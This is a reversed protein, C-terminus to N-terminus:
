QDAGILTKKAGAQPDCKCTLAPYMETVVTVAWRMRNVATDPHEGFENAVIEVCGRVHLRKITARIAADVESPTVPAFASISSAFLAEAWMASIVDPNMAQEM